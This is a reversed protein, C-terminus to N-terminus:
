ARLRSCSRSAAIPRGRSRRTASLLRSGGGAANPASAPSGTSSGTRNSASRQLTAYGAVRGDELAVFAVAANALEQKVWEDYPRAEAQGATVMDPVAAASVEYAGRRHEERLELIGDRM